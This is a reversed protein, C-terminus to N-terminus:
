FLGPALALRKAIERLGKCMQRQDAGREIQVTHQAAPISSVRTKGHFMMSFLKHRIESLSAYGLLGPFVCLWGVVQDPEDGM